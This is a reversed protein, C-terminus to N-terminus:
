PQVYSLKWKRWIRAKASRSSHLGATRLIEDMLKRRRSGDLVLDVYHQFGSLSPTERAADMIAVNYEAGLRGLLTVADVSVGSLLMDVAAAFIDAYEQVSFDQPKIQGVAKELLEPSLVIGGIVAREAPMTREDM